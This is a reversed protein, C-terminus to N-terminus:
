ELVKKIKLIEEDAEQMLSFIDKKIRDLNKLNASIANNSFNCPSIKYYEVYQELQHTIKQKSEDAIPLGNVFKRWEKNGKAGNCKKCAPVLNGLVNGFGGYEGKLVLAHLHDWTDAKKGCYVCLIKSPVQGLLKLAHKVDREEYIGTRALGNAFAHNITTQRNALISYPLLYKKISNIKM